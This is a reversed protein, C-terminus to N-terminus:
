SHSALEIIGMQSIEFYSHLIDVNSCKIVLNWSSGSCGEYIMICGPHPPSGVFGQSGVPIQHSNQAVTGPYLTIVFKTVNMIIKIIKKVLHLATFEAIKMCQYM